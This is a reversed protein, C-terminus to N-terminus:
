ATPLVTMRIHTSGFPVLTVPVADGCAGAQACAPSAPPMDAANTVVPWNTVPRAMGTITVPIVTSSFPQSSPASVTNFTLSAGPNARDVVLALAWPQTPTVALDQSNFAHQGTVSINQGIWASFVLAGRVVAM